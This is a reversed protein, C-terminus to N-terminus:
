RARRSNPCLPARAWLKYAAEVRRYFSVAPPADVPNVRMEPLGLVSPSPPRRPVCGPVLGLEAINLLTAAHDEAAEVSGWVAAGTIEPGAPRAWRWSLTTAATSGSVADFMNADSTSPRTVTQPTVGDPLPYFHSRIQVRQTHEQLLMMWVAERLNDIPLRGSRMKEARSADTLVRDVSGDRNLALSSCSEHMFAAGTALDYASTTDCFDYHGRRGSIILWGALPPRIRGLPLVSTKPRQSELCDRWAQYRSAVSGAPLEEACLASTADPTAAVPVIRDRFLRIDTDPHVARHAALAQEARQIWGLTEMGCRDDDLPCLLPRLPDDHEIAAALTPRADPPLVVHPVLKGLEGQRPLELYSELWWRGGDDRWWRKLALTSDPIPVRDTEAAALFCESKLLAHLEHVAAAVDLSAPLRDIYEDLLEIRAAADQYAITSEVCRPLPTGPTLFSWFGADQARAPAPLPLIILSVLGALRTISRRV